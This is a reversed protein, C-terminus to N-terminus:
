RWAGIRGAARETTSSRGLAITTSCRASRAFLRSGDRFWMGGDLPKSVPEDRARRLWRPHNSGWVGTTSSPQQGIGRHNLLSRLSRRSVVDRHNGGRQATRGQDRFWMGGDLPKSVPPGEGEEVVLPPRQGFGGTTSSRGLAITTSCRASRAFLRYGDRFWTGTTAAASRRVAKTEFGCCAQIVVRTSNGPHGRGGRAGEGVLEPPAPGVFPQCGQELRTGVQARRRRM